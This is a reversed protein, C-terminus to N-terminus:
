WMCVFDPIITCLVCVCVCVCKIIEETRKLCKAIKHNKEKYRKVNMFK